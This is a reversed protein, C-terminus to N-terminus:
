RRQLAIPQDEMGVLRLAVVRSGSEEFEVAYAPPLGDIGFRAPSRAVLLWSGEGALTLRLRDGAEEVTATLGDAGTYTGLLRRRDAATLAIEAPPLETPFPPGTIAAVCSTDLGRATGKEVLQDLLRDVCEAGRLGEFGHAGHPVVLHVSNPLLNAVERGWRAPTVPDREGSFLLAPAESAVPSREAAPVPPVPWERCAARQARVRFDDLFTGRSAAAAEEETIFPLEEACTVSLFYGDALRGAFRAFFAASDALPQFDGAAAAHLYLPVLVALSPIYLMYRLTQGVGTRTLRLETSGGTVPDRVAVAAPEKEVRALVAELEQRLRPFARGCAADAACARLTGDLAEQADRAFTLPSRSDPPVLGVLGLTRVREPHRRAFELASRTGYSGGWLHVKGYGLAALVEAVDDVAVATRYQALDRDGFAARCERVAAPPLFEDLFGQLARTGQLGPCALPESGGTGRLDVLVFDHRRRLEAHVMAMAAAEEVASEGPGGAFGVVPELAPQGGTAPLVLVRLRVTRGQPRARDEPVEHTGCRAEGAVGEVTCPSLALRPPSSRAPPCGLGCAAAVAVWAAAPRKRPM